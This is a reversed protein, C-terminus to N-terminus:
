KQSLYREIREKDDSTYSLYSNNVNSLEDYVYSVIARGIITEECSSMMEPNEQLIELETTDVTFAIPGFCTAMAISAVNFSAVENTEGNIYLQKSITFYVKLRLPNIIRRIHVEKTVGYENAQMSEFIANIISRVPNKILETMDEISLNLDVTIPQALVPGDFDSGSLVQIEGPRKSTLM